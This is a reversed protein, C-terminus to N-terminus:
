TLDKFLIHWWMKKTSRLFIARHLSYIQLGTRSKLLWLFDFLLFHVNMCYEAFVEMHSFLVKQTKEQLVSKVATRLCLKQMPKHTKIYPYLTNRNINLLV